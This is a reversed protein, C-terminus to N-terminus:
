LIKNSSQENQLTRPKGKLWKFFNNKCNALYIGLLITLGGILEYIRFEEKLVLVGLFYATLPFLYAVSSAITSGLLRILKLYIINAAASCLVGLWTLALWTYPRSPIVIKSNFVIVALWLLLSSWTLSYLSLLVPSHEQRFRSYLTGGAYLVSALIVALQPIIHHTFSDVVISRIFILVIGLFGICMGIVKQKTVEQKSKITLLSLIVTFLPTLSNLLGAISTAVYEEAWVILTIPLAMLLLALVCTDFFLQKTLELKLNKSLAIAWLALAGLSFRWASVELTSLEDLSIKIWYYSTGWMFTGLSIFLVWPYTKKILSM